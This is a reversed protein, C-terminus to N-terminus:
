HWLRVPPPYRMSIPLSNWLIFALVLVGFLTVLFILLRRAVFSRFKKGRDRASMNMQPFGLALRLVFSLLSYEFM